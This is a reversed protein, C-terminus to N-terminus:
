WTTAAEGKEKSMPYRKKKKKKPPKWYEGTLPQEAALQSRPSRVPPSLCMDVM